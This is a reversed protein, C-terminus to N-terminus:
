NRPHEQKWHRESRSRDLDYGLREVKGIQYPAELGINGTYVGAASLEKSLVGRNDLGRDASIEKPYGAWSVWQQMVVDLCHASKPSGHGARLVVEIQMSAGVDVMCFM